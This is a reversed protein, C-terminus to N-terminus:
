VLRSKKSNTSFNSDAEDKIMKLFENKIVELRKKLKQPKDSLLWKFRKKKTRKM